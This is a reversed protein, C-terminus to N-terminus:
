SSSLLQMMRKKNNSIVLSTAILPWFTLTSSFLAKEQAYEMGITWSLSACLYLFFGLFVMVLIFSNKNFLFKNKIFIFLGIVVSLSFFLATFDVPIWIFRPDTKYIGAFLFLILCAEFSFVTDLLLFLCKSIINNTIM